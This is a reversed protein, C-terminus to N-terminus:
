KKKGKRLSALHKEYNAVRVKEKCVKSCLLSGSYRGSTNLANTFEKGCVRCKFVGKECEKQYYKNSCDVCCFRSTAEYGKVPHFCRGCEWCVSVINRNRHNLGM